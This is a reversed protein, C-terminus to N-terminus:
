LQERRRGWTRWGGGGAWLGLWSIVGNSPDKHQHDQQLSDELHSSPHSAERARLMLMDQDQCAVRATITKPSQLPDEGIARRWWEPIDAIIEEMKLVEMRRLVREKDKVLRRKLIGARRCIGEVLPWWDSLDLTDDEEVETEMRRLKKHQPEKWGYPLSEDEKM